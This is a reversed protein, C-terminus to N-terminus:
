GFDNLDNKLQFHVLSDNEGAKMLIIFRIFIMISILVFFMTLCLGPTSGNLQVINNEGILNM